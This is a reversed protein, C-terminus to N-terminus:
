EGFLEVQKVKFHDIKALETADVAAGNTRELATQVKEFYLEVTLPANKMAHLPLGKLTSASLVGM